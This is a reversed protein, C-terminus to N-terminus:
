TAVVSYSAIYSSALEVDHKLHEVRLLSVIRFSNAYQHISVLRLVCTEFRRPVSV